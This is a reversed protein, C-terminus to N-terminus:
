ERLKKQLIESIKQPDAQGNFFKIIQGVLYNFSKQKGLHFDQVISLNEALIMDAIKNIEESNRMKMSSYSKVISDIEDDCKRTYIESLIKRVVSNSLTNNAIGLALKALVKGPIKLNLFLEYETSKVIRPIEDLILRACIREHGKPVGAVVSEFYDAITRTLTLREADNKNLNYQTKLRTYKAIPLEPIKSAIQDISTQSIKVAPLDPDPFYLYDYSEEKNRMRYTQNKESDYLRTEQILRKGSELSETQRQIEFLIAKELFKFSNINKIETRMGMKRSNIPRISINLDFRFSGREMDGDCIDLWKVLKHLAKAYSVASEASHIDPKSVIELLPLGARNLDIGTAELTKNKLKLYGHTSKGADEELHARELKIVKKEENHFFSIKGGQLVPFEFQSIQYGKPLDPYFYHKREFFSYHQIRAGIAIGFFITMEIARKNLVPLTGPLALDFPCIHTNPNISFATDSNSFIKSKTSLQVHTELGIDIGWKVIKTAM